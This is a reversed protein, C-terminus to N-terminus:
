PKRRELQRSNYCFVRMDVGDAIPVSAGHGM